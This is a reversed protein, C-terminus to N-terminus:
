QLLHWYGSKVEAKSAFRVHVSRREYGIAVRILMSRLTIPGARPQTHLAECIPFPSGGSRPITSERIQEATIISYLLYTPLRRWNPPLTLHTV